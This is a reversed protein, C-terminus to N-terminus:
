RLKIEYGDDFPSDWENVLVEWTNLWPDYISSFDLKDTGNIFRVSLCEWNASEIEYDFGCKEFYETMDSMSNFKKTKLISILDDRTMIEGKELITGETPSSGVRGISM